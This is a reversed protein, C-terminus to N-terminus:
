HNCDKSWKSQEFGMLKILGNILNLKAKFHPKVLVNEVENQM